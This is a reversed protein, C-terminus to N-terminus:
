KLISYLDKKEISMWHKKFAKAKTKVSLYGECKPQKLKNCCDTCLLKDFDTIENGCECFLLKETSEGGLFTSPSNIVQQEKIKTNPLRVVSSMHTNPAPSNPAFSSKTPKNSLKSLYPKQPIALKTDELIEGEEAKQIRLTKSETKPTSFRVLNSMQSFKSLVKPPALKKGANPSRLLKLEANKKLKQEYGKFTALSPFKTKVLSFICIFMESTVNDTIKKFEEFDIIQKEGFCLNVLNILELQSEARDVFEEGGGGGQTFLGEKPVAKDKAKKDIPAHSLLL